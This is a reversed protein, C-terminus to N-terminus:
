NGIAPLQYDDGFLVIIPIGGWEESSYGYEHATRAVSKKAVGLILQSLMSREDMLIAITNQIKKKLQEQTMKTMNQWDLGSFKHLTEGLVNYAAMGTPAVVHVVYNNDFMRRLYSVITNIIFTKGTGAAGKVTLCLPVFTGKKTSAEWSIWEQIKDCVKYLVAAQSETANNIDYHFMKEDKKRM